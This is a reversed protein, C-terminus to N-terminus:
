GLLSHNISSAKSILESRFLIVGIALSSGLVGQLRGKTVKLSSQGISLSSGHSTALSGHSLKLGSDTLEFRLKSRDLGAGRLVGLGELSGLALDLLELKGLSLVLLVLVSHGVKGALELLLDLGVLLLNLLSLLNGGQVKGLEALSLLLKFLSLLTGLQRGTDLDSILGAQSQIFLIKIM